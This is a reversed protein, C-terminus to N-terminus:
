HGVPMHELVFMAAGGAAVALVMLVQTSIGSRGEGKASAQKISERNWTTRARM